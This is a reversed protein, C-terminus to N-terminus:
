SDRNSKKSSESSPSAIRQEVISAAFRHWKTASLVRKGRRLHGYFARETAAIDTQLGSQVGKVRARALRLTCGFFAGVM